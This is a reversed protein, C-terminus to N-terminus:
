PFAPYHVHAIRDMCIPGFVAPLLLCRDGVGASLSLPVAVKYPAYPKPLVHSYHASVETSSSTSLIRLGELLLSAELAINRCRVDWWPIRMEVVSNATVSVAPFFIPREPRRKIYLTYGLGFM